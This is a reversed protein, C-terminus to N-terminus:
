NYKSQLKTNYALDGLQASLVNTLNAAETVTSAQGGLADTMAAIQESTYGARDAMKQIDDAADLVAPSLYGAFM